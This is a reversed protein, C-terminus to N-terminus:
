MPPPGTNVKLSKVTTVVGSADMSAMAQEAMKRQEDPLQSLMAKMQEMQARQQPTMTNMLDTMVTTKHPHLFGQVARYDQMLTSVTVERTQGSMTVDAKMEMKLPVYDSADLFMTMSKPKMAGGSAAAANKMVELDALNEVVIKFTRKGDVTETGAMTAKSIFDASAMLEASMKAAEDDSPLAAGGAGRGGVSAVRPIFVPYGDVLKKEFYMTSEVGGTEQVVTFNNVNASRRVAAAKSDNMIQQVTQAEAASAVVALAVAAIATATRV